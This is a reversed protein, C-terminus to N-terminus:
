AGVGERHERHGKRVNCTRHSLQINSAEHTGGQKLPVIHDIQAAMPDDWPLALDVVDGCIGCRGGSREIVEARYVTEIVPAGCRKAYERFAGNAQACRESCYDKIHPLQTAFAKVCYQCRKEVEPRVPRPPRHAKAWANKYDLRERRKRREAEYARQKARREPSSQQAQYEPTARRARDREARCGPCGDGPTFEHGRQCTAM